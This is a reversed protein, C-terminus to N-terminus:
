LFFYRSSHMTKTKLTIYSIYKVYRIDFKVMQNDSVYGIDFSLKVCRKVVVVIKTLVMVYVIIMGPVYAVDNCFM